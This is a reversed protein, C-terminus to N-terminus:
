SDNVNEYLSDFGCCQFGFNTYKFRLFDLEIVINSFFYNLMFYLLQFSLKYYIYFYFYCLSFSGSAGSAFLQLTTWPSSVALAKLFISFSKWATADIEKLLITKWYSPNELPNFVSM